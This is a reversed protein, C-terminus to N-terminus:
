IKKTMLINHAQSCHAKELKYSLINANLVNIPSSFDYNLFNFGQLLLTFQWNATKSISCNQIFHPRQQLLRPSPHWQSQSLMDFFHAPWYVTRGLLWLINNLLFKPNYFVRISPFISPLLLLLCCLIPHNSPMVWKISMLKLFSQFNTISLSAQCAATWPIASYFM